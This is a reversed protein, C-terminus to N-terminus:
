DVAPHCILHPPTNGPQTVESKGRQPSARHRRDLRDRATFPEAQQDDRRRRGVGLRPRVPLGVPSRGYIEAFYCYAVLVALPPRAHGISDTFLDTQKALGPASGAAIKQRLALVAQGVPVM